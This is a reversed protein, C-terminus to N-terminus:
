RVIAVAMQPKRTDAMPAAEIIHFLEKGGSTFKTVYGAEIGPPFIGDLGSTAVIDGEGVEYDSGVYKLRCRNPGAGSLVAEIASNKFRVSVSFRPDDILLVTASKASVSAVKGLLGDPTIIPMDKQIGDDTGKDITLSSTWRDTGRGVIRVAATYKLPATQLGLINQLRKNEAEATLLDNLRLRMSLNETRLRELEERESKLFKAMHFATSYFSTISSGLNNIAPGLFALPRLPGSRSQFTMLISVAALFALFLRLHRQM